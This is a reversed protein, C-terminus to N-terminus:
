LQRRAKSVTPRDRLGRVAFLGTDPDLDLHAAFRYLATRVLNADMMIGTRVKM